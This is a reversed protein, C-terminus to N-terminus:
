IHLDCGVAIHGELSKYIELVEEDWFKQEKKDHVIGWWGMDGKEHWKGDPTVVAFPISKNKLLFDTTTM